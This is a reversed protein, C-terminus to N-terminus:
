KVNLCFPACVLLLVFVVIITLVVWLLVRAITNGLPVNVVPDPQGCKPCVKAEPSIGRYHCSKCWTERM